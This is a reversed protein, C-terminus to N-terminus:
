SNVLPDSYRKLRNLNNRGKALLGKLSYGTATAQSADFVIRCPTSVSSPKWVARWAIFNQIQNSSLSEQVKSPLNKVYDVYGLSQLKAESQLVDIKDKPLRNLKKLQQSYVKMAIVKNPALKLQPDSIFPLKATAIRTTLDIEVSSNIIAQETEEKLSVAEHSDHNKCKKCERCTICRYTIQSGVEEAQNLLKYEKPTKTEKSFCSTQSSHGLFLFSKSM